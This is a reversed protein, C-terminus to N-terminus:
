EVWLLCGWMRLKQWVVVGAMMMWGVDWGGVVVGGGSQVLGASAGVVVLNPGGVPVACQPLVIWHM